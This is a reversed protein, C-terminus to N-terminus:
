RSGGDAASDFRCGEPRGGGGEQISEPKAAGVNWERPVPEIVLALVPQDRLRRAAIDPVHHRNVLGHADLGRFTLTLMRELNQRRRAPKTSRKEARQRNREGGPHGNKPRGQVDGRQRGAIGTPGSHPQKPLMSTGETKRRPTM